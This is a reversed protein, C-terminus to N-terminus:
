IKGNILDEGIQAVKNYLSNLDSDNILTIDPEVNDLATESPHKQQEERPLVRLPSEAM